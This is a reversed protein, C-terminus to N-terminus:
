TQTVSWDVGAPATGVVDRYADAPTVARIRM